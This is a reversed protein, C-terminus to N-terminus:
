HQVRFPVGTVNSWYMGGKRQIHALSVQSPGCFCIYDSESRQECQPTSRSSTPTRKDATTFFSTGRNFLVSLVYVKLAQPLSPHQVTHSTQQNRGM